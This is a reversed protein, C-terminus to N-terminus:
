KKPIKFNLVDKVSMNDLQRMTLGTKTYLESAMNSKVQPTRDDVDSLDFFTILIKGIKTLYVM